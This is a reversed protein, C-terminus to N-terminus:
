TIGPGQASFDCCSLKTYLGQVQPLTQMIFFYHAERTDHLSCLAPPLGGQLSILMEGICANGSGRVMWLNKHLTKEHEEVTKCPLMAKGHTLCFIHVQLLLFSAKASHPTLHPENQGPWTLWVPCSTLVFYTSLTKYLWWLDFTAYMLNHQKSM